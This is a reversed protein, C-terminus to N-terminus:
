ECEQLSVIYRHTDLDYSNAIIQYKKRDIVIFKSKMLLQLEGPNICYIREFYKSKFVVNMKEDM